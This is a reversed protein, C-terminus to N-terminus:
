SSLPELWGGRHSHFRAQIRGQRRTAWAGAAGKGEWLPLRSRSTPVCAPAPHLAPGVCWLSCRSRTPKGTPEDHSRNPPEWPTWSLIFDIIHTLLGSSGPGM